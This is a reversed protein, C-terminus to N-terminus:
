RNCFPIHTWLIDLFYCIQMPHTCKRKLSYALVRCLSPPHCTLSCRSPSLCCPSLKPTILADTQSEKRGWERKSCFREKKRTEPMKIRSLCISKSRGPYVWACVCVFAWAHMCTYVCMCLTVCLWLCLYSVSCLCLSKSLCISELPCVSM